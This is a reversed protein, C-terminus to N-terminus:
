SSMSLSVSNYKTNLANFILDHRMSESLGIKLLQDVSMLPLRVLALLADLDAAPVCNKKSWDQVAEFIQIEPAAFTDRKLMM